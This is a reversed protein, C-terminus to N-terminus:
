FFDDKGPAAAIAIGAGDTGKEQCGGPFDKVIYYFNM